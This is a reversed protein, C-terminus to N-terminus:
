LTGERLEPLGLWQAPEGAKTVFYLRRQNLLDSNTKQKFFEAEYRVEGTKAGDANRVVSRRCWIVQFLDQNASKEWAFKWGDFGVKGDKDERLHTEWYVDVGLLNLRQCQATLQKFRTSRIAWNWGIEKNLKAASAEVADTAKMDLDHIKMVNMCMGDFQDVGTVIFTKLPLGDFDPRQQQEAYEVAFKCIDMTRNYSALYNYATRNEQQMVWPSFTRFREDKPYHATKCALGGNDHDLVFCMGQPHRHVHADMALGTKGTGEHGVMGCFIASPAMADPAAQAQMEQMLDPFRTLFDSSTTPEAPAAVAVPAEAVPAPEPAPTAKVPAPAPAPTSTTTSSDALAEWGNM